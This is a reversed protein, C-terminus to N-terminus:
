NKGGHPVDSPHDGCACSGIAMPHDVVNWRPVLYHEYEGPIPDDAQVMCASAGIQLMQGAKVEHGSNLMYDAIQNLLDAAAHGMFLPLGRIELEALGFKDMGHTHVWGQTGEGGTVLHIRLVKMPDVIVDNPGRAM